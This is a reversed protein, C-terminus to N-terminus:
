DMARLNGKSSLLCDEKNVRLTLSSFPVCLGTHATPIYPRPQKVRTMGIKM